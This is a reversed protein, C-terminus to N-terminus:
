AAMPMRYRALTESVMRALQRRRHESLAELRVTTSLHGCAWLLKRARIPGIRHVAKLIDYVPMRQLYEEESVLVDCPDVLGLRIDAKLQARALRVDNARVRSRERQAARDFQQQM